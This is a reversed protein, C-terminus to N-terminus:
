GTIINGKHFKNFHHIMYGVLVAIFALLLITLKNYTKEEKYKKRCEECVPESM